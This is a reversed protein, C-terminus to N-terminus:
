KKQFAKLILLLLALGGGAFAWWYKKFQEKLAAKKLKKGADSNMAKEILNLDHSSGTQYGKSSKIREQTIRLQEADYAKQDQEAEWRALGAGSGLIGGTAKGAVGRLLNGFFTGGKKRKFLKKFFGM